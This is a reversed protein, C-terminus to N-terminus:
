FKSFLDGIEKKAAENMPIETGNIILYNPGMKEIERVNVLFSRHCRYFVNEPLKDAAHKLPSSLLYRNNRTVVKCYNDAAELYLIDKLDLKVHEHRDKVLIFRDSIETDSAQTAVQPLLALTTKLDERKFPKVIYGDAKAARVRNITRDDSFSTLFVVQCNRQTRVYNWIDVGDLDGHVQIDQLVIDPVFQPDQLLAEVEEYSDAMGIVTYGLETVIGAIDEAILPEDEVILIKRSM